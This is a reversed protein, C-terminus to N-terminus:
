VCIGHQWERPPRPMRMACPCIIYKWRMSCASSAVMQDGNLMCLFRGTVKRQVSLPRDRRQMHDGM